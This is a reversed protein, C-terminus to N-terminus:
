YDTELCEDAESYYAGDYGKAMLRGYCRHCVLRYIIQHCDTTYLMDNRPFEKGCTPCVRIDRDINKKDM